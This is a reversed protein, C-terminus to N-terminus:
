PSEDHPILYGHERVSIAVVWCIIASNYLNATHRYKTRLCQGLSLGSTITLRVTGEQLTYALLSAFILVWVLHLEFEAGARACTVVTGPGVTCAALMTWYLLNATEKWVSVLKM